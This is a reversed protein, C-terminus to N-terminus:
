SSASIIKDRSGEGLAKLELDDVPSSVPAPSCLISADVKHSHKTGCLSHHCCSPAPPDLLVVGPLAEPICGFGAPVSCPSRPLFPSCLWGSIPLSVTVPSHAFGSKGLVASSMRWRRRTGEPLGRGAEATSGRSPAPVTGARAARRAPLVLLERECELGPGPAGRARCPVAMAHWLVVSGGVARASHESGSSLPCREMAPVAPVLLRLSLVAGALSLEHM